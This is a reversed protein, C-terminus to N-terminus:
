MKCFKKFQAIKYVAGKQLKCIKAIKFIVLM